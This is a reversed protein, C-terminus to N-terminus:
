GAQAAPAPAFNIERVDLLPFEDGDTAFLRQGSGLFTAEGVQNWETKRAMRIQTDASRESGPYRTPILSALESGNEL